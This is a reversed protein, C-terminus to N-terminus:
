RRDNFGLLKLLAVEVRAMIQPELVGCFEGFQDWRITMLIDPQVESAKRLGNTESPDVPIRYSPPDDSRSGILAITTKPLQGYADSQLVLVPRPKSGFGGGTAATHIEGRHRQM